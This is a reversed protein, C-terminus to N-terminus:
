QFYVCSQPIMVFTTIQIFFARTTDENIDLFFLLKNMLGSLFDFLLYACSIKPILMNNMLLAQSITKATLKYALFRLVFCIWIQVHLERSLGGTLFSYNEVGDFFWAQVQKSSEDDQFIFGFVKVSNIKNFTFM